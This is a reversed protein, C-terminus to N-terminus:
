ARAFQRLRAVKAPELMAALNRVNGSHFKSGDSAAEELLSHSSPVLV